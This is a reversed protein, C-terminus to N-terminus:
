EFNGKALVEGDKMMVRGRAVLGSVSLDDRRVLLVDADAGAALEGKGPLKLARAPNATATAVAKELPVSRSLIAERLTEWLSAPSAVSIGALVGKDDFIPLSGQGDSSCTLRGGLGEDLFRKLAESAPVEGEEIFRPVTSTTLDAWGGERAWDLSEAFVQPNRNCHTPIFQSRPMDGAAVLERLPALASPADGIHFNVVGAKGSLMGGVRAESAIRGLEAQTPKSSRHDSVALEGAGIIPDIMMIDKMVDGTVTAPPVRYSGTYLWCSLGQARLGYAKAVLSEMSRALGDTGLTGVVTSVGARVCDVLKLEPTRTAFGGEGGGGLIHVHSDILGPLALLGRADLEEVPFPLGSLSLGEAIAVIKGAEVAIDVSGLSGPAYVQANKIVLM